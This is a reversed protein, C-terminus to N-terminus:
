KTAEEFFREYLNKLERVPSEKIKKEDAWHLYAWLLAGFNTGWDGLYNHRIVSAGTQWYINGLVQGIITSPLHNLGIPKAINPSSYDILVIKDKNLDSEGYKDNM